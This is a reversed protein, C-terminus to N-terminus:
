DPLIEELYKRKNEKYKQQDWNAPMRSKMKDAYTYIDSIVRAPVGAVVSNDPVDKTVVAGAAVVCNKGIHVGPMITSRAGIFSNDGVKIKGFRVVGKYEEQRRFPWSGGDHTIFTVFSSIRVNDGLTILYPESGFEAGTMVTVGKGCKLGSKVAVKLRGFFAQKIKLMLKKFFM